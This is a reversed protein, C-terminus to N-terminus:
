WRCFSTTQPTPCALNYALFTTTFTCLLHDVIIRPALYCAYTYCLSVCPSVRRNTDKILGEALSTILIKRHVRHHINNSLRILDKNNSTNHHTNGWLRVRERLLPVAAETWIHAQTQIWSPVRVVSRVTYKTGGMLGNRGIYPPRERCPPLERGICRRRLCLSSQPLAKNSSITCRAHASYLSMRPIWVRSSLSSKLFLRHLATPDALLIATTAQYSPQAAPTSNHNRPKFIQLATVMSTPLPPSPILTGILNAVTADTSRPTTNSTGSHCIYACRQSCRSLCFVQDIAAIKIGDGVVQAEMKQGGYEDLKAQERGIKGSYVQSLLPMMKAHLMPTFLEAHLAPHGFRKELRNGKADARESHVKAAQLEEETPIYYRFKSDFVRTTYVKFVLVIIIPPVTILWQLSRFGYQLGIAIFIDANRNIVYAAFFIGYQSGVPGANISCHVAASQHRREMTATAFAVDSVLAVLSVISYGGWRNRGQFRVRVDISVQISGLEDLVSHDCGFGRSTGTSRLRPGRSGHIAIIKNIRLERIVKLLPVFWTLATTSISM